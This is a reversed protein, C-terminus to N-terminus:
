FDYKIAVVSQECIIYVVKLHLYVLLITRFPLIKYNVYSIKITIIINTYLFEVKTYIESINQFHM